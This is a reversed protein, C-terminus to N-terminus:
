AVVMPEVVEVAASILALQIAEPEVLAMQAAPEVVRLVAMAPLLEAQEAMLMATLVPVVRAEPEVLEQELKVVLLLSLVLISHPIPEMVAPVVLGVPGVLM